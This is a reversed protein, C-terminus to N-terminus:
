EGSTKGRRLLGSLTDGEVYDMVLFLGLPDDGVDLVSVVNNHRISSALKAEEILLSQFDPSERLHLHTLKLAVERAFGGAGRSKALYVTAMGGSAIPVLVEYRGVFHPMAAAERAASGGM